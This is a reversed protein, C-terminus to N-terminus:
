GFVQLSKNTVLRSRNGRVMSGYVGIVTRVDQCSQEVDVSADLKGVFLCVFCFFYGKRARGRGGWTYKLAALQTQFRRDAKRLPNKMTKNLLSELCRKKVRASQFM